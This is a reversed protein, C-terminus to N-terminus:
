LRVRSLKRQKSLGSRVNRGISGVLSGYSMKCGHMRMMANAACTRHNCLKVFVLAVYADAAAYQLQSASLPVVTWDGCRITREKTLDRAKM